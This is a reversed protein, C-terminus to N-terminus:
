HPHVLNIPAAKTASILRLHTIRRGDEGADEEESVRHFNLDTDNTHVFRARAYRAHFVITNFHTAPAARIRLKSQRTM